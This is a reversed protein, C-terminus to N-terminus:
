PTAVAPNIEPELQQEQLPEGVPPNIQSDNGNEEQRKKKEYQQQYPYTWPLLLTDAAICLIYDAAFFVWVYPILIAAMGMGFVVQAMEDTGAYPAPLARDGLDDFSRITACGSNGCTLLILVFLLMRQKSERM